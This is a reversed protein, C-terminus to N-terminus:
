HSVADFITQTETKVVKRPKVERVQDDHWRNSDWSDWTGNQKWYQNGNTFVVWIAAPGDTKGWFADYVMVDGVGQLNVYPNTSNELDRLSEIFDEIDCADIAKIVESLPIPKLQSLAKAQKIAESEVWGKRQMEEVLSRESFYTDFDGKTQANNMRVIAGHYPCDEPKKAQCDSPTTKM